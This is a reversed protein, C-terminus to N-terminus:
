LLGLRKVLSEGDTSLASNADILQHSSQIFYGALGEWIVAGMPPPALGSVYSERPILHQKFVEPPQPNVVFLKLRHKEIGEAIVANVHADRFGYGIVLLHRDGAHLVQKFVESYWRLLPESQIASAKTTGVILSEGGSASRWGLSGHLKFYALERDKQSWFRSRLDEVESSSPLDVPAITFKGSNNPRFWPIKGLLGPIGVKCFNLSFYRELFLDQNLTFMMGMEDRDVKGFRALFLQCLAFAHQQFEGCVSLHLHEYARTIATVFDRREREGFDYFENRQVLDYVVEFNQNELLCRRLKQHQHIEPQNFILAWMESALYGRFPKSFGAGTLLVNKAAQLRHASM